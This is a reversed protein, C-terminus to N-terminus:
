CSARWCACPIRRCCAQLDVARGRCNMIGLVLYLDPTHLGAALLLATVLAAGTMFLANVINGAAIIRARAAETAAASIIAYLPVVFIGGCIAIALLDAFVCGWSARCFAAIGLLEGSAPRSAKAFRVRSRAFFVAM